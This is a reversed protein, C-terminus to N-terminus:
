RVSEVTQGGLPIGRAVFEGDATYSEFYAPLGEGDFLVPTNQLHYHLGPETSHGSNGCRGLMQGIEVRDGEAVVISGQKLHCLFSFEGNGHDIVVMNGAVDTMEHPRNEPVNSIVEVVVGTGPALVELGYAHYQENRSGDGRYTCLDKKVCYDGAFRQDRSPVHSSNHVATKGGSAAYWAGEFPLRLSTKTEYDLFRTAAEEPLSEVSFAHIDQNSGFGFMIQIPRDTKEFRSIRRYGYYDRENGGVSVTERLVSIERGLTAAVEDRFSSLQALTYQRDVICKSLVELDYELFSATFERGQALLQAKVTEAPLDATEQCSLSCSLLLLTAAIRVVPALQKLNNVFM